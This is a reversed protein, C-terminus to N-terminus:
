KIILENSNYPYEVNYLGNCNPCLLKISDVNPRDSLGVPLLPTWKCRYCPCKGFEGNM